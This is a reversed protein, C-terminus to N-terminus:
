GEKRNANLLMQMTQLVIRQSDADLRRFKRTVEADKQPNSSKEWSMFLSMELPSIDLVKMLGNIEKCNSKLPRTMTRILAKRTTGIERAIRVLPLGSEKIIKYIFNQSNVSDDLNQYKNFYNDQSNYGYDDLYTKYVIMYHKEKKRAEVKDKAYDLLRYDFSDKGYLIYDRQFMKELHCGLRLNRLHAEYRKTHNITMGIYKRGTVKNFIEYIYYM